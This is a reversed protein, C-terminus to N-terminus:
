LFPGSYFVPGKEKIESEFSFLLPGSNIKKAQSEFAPQAFRLTDL